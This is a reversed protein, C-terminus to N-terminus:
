GREWYPLIEARHSIDVKFSRRKRPMACRSCSHPRAGGNTWVGRRLRLFRGCTCLVFVVLEGKHRLPGAALTLQGQRPQIPIDTM